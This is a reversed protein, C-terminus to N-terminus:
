KGGSVAAEEWGQMTAGVALVGVLTWMPWVHKWKRSKELSLDEAEQPLLKIGDDRQAEFAKSDQALLAGKVFYEKGIHLGTIAMFTDMEFQIQRSSLGSFPTVNNADLNEHPDNSM